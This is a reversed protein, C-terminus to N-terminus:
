KVGADALAARVDAELSNLWSTVGHYTPHEKITQIMQPIAVDRFGYKALDQCMAWKLEPLTKEQFEEYKDVEPRAEATLRPDRRNRQGREDRAEERQARDKGEKQVIAFASMHKIKSQWATILRPDEHQRMQPLIANDYIGSINTPTMEWNGPDISNEIKYAECFVSGSASDIYEFARGDLKLLDDIFSILSTMLQRRDETEVAKITMILYRLEMQRAARHYVSNIVADNSELYTRWAEAKKDEDTFRLKKLCELYFANADVPSNAHSMFSRLATANQASMKGVVAKRLTALEELVKQLDAKSLPKSEAFAPASLLAIGALFKPWCRFSAKILSMIM